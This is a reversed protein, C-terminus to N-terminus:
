CTVKIRSVGLLAQFLSGYTALSGLFYAMTCKLIKKTNEKALFEKILKILWGWRTDDGGYDLGREENNRSAYYGASSIGTRRDLLPTTDTSLRDTDRALFM